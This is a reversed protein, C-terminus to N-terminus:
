ANLITDDAFILDTFKMDGVSAEYRTQDVAEGLVWDM